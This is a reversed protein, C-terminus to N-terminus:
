ITKWINKKSFTVKDEFVGWTSAENQPFNPSLESLPLVSSDSKKLAVHLHNYLTDRFRVSVFATIITDKFVRICPKLFPPGTGMMPISPIVQLIPKPCATQTLISNLIYFMNMLPTTWKQWQCFATGSKCWYFLLVISFLFMNIKKIWLWGKTWLMSMQSTDCEFFCLTYPFLVLYQWLKSKQWFLLM